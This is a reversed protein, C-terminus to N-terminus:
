PVARPRRVASIQEPKSSCSQRRATRCGCAAKALPNKTAVALGKALRKCRVGRM